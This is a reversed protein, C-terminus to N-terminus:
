LLSGRRLRNLLLLLCPSGILATVVGLKLENSTPLVRVLIDAALLLSAGLFLSNLLLRKPQHGVLPRLLHPVVLGVFGIVGSVAVAPGVALATGLVVQLRLWRLRIGLSQATSEGLTLANLGSGSSLLLAWGLLMLPACLRVHALSRDSLSGMQWFIIEMSAFPNSALNLALSTAAAALLNVAVGALILTVTGSNVGALLYLLLVGLFAGAIGGIPLALSFVMTLGSYFTIVAGLAAGASVGVLGPEALPNRLLGQMAAGALGLSAGVLLGLLARPLRLEFAVLRDMSEEGQWWHRLAAMLDIDAHGTMMSCLTLLLMLSVLAPLLYKEQGFLAKKHRKM